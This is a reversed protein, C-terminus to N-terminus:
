LFKVFELLKLVSFHKNKFNVACKKVTFLWFAECSERVNFSPTCFATSVYVFVNLNVIRQSLLMIERTGRINTETAEKLSEDFRVDAAAHFVIEVDNILNKQDEPSIGLELNQLDGSVLTLKSFPNEQQKLVRVFIQPFFESSQLNECTENVWQNMSSSRSVIQWRNERRRDWLCIFKRWKVGFFSKLWFNESSALGVRLSFQRIKWSNKLRLTHSSTRWCTLRHQFIIRSFQKWERKM